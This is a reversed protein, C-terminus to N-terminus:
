FSQNAARGLEKNRYEVPSMGTKKKFVISFYNPNSFGTLESVDVVRLLPDKLLTMSKNIRLNMLYETYTEGTNKKFIESLYTPNVHFTEALMALSIDASHYNEQLYRKIAGVIEAVGTAQTRRVRSICRSALDTLVAKMRIENQLQWVSDPLGLLIRDIEPEDLEHRRCFSELLFLVKLFRVALGRVSLEPKMLGDLCSSFAALDLNHLLTAIRKETEPPFGPDDKAAQDATIIGSKLGSPSQSWAYLSSQFGERLSDLGSVAFGIGVVSEAKLYRRIAPQLTQRAWEEASRENGDAGVILHLMNRRAPDHFVFADRRWEQCLERVLYYFALFLLDDRRGDADYMSEHRIEAVLFRVKADDALYRDLQLRAAHERIQAPFRIEQGKVLNLLFQERLFHATQGNWGSPQGQRRNLREEDIEKRLRELLEILEKRIVPKLLYDKAGYKMAVRAYSFDDYGSLVVTKLHPFREACERLLRLGDMVPMRIDTFVVDPEHREMERLAEEGDSAEACIEFGQAQWDIKCKLGDRITVEDDVILV